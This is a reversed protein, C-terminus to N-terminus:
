TTNKRIVYERHDSLSLFLVSFSFACLFFFCLSLSSLVIVRGYAGRWSESNESVQYELAALRVKERAGAGATTACSCAM